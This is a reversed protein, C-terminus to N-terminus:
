HVIGNHHWLVFRDLELFTVTWPDAFKIPRWTKVERHLLFVLVFCGAVGRANRCFEIVLLLQKSWSDAAVVCLGM